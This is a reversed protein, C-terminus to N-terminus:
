ITPRTAAPVTSANLTTISHKRRLRRVGAGSGQRPTHRCVRRPDPGRQGRADLGCTHQVARRDDHRGALRPPPNSAYWEPPLYVLEGRHKFHSADSPISVPVVTGHPPRTGSAVMAAVAAQDTQDPLPGSTIQNWATQVTPLLWGVPQARACWQAPVLARGAADRWAALQARQALGPDVRGCGHGDIRDLAVAHRLPNM